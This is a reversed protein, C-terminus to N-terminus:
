GCCQNGSACLGTTGLSKTGTPCVLDQSVCKGNKLACGSGTGADVPKGGRPVCCMSMPECSPDFGVYVYEAGCPAEPRTCLGGQEECPSSVSCSSSLLLAWLYARARM